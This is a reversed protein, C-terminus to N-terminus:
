KMKVTYVKDIRDYSHSYGGAFFVVGNDDTVEYGNIEQVDQSTEYFTVGDPAASIDSYTGDEVIPYTIGLEPIMCYVPMRFENGRNGIFLMGNYVAMDNGMDSIDMVCHEMKELNYIHLKVNNYLLAIKEDAYVIRGTTLATGIRYYDNVLEYKRKGEPKVLYSYVGNFRDSAVIHGEPAETGNEKVFEGKDSDYIYIVTDEHSVNHYEQLLINGSYDENLWIGVDIGRDEYIVTEKGTELDFRKVQKLNDNEEKRFYTYFMAGDCFYSMSECYEDPTEASWSYIEEPKGGAMDYSYLEWDYINFNDHLVYIYCKGNWICCKYTVGKIPKNVFNQWRFVPQGNHQEKNNYYDEVFEEKNCVPVKEGFDFGSIDVSSVEVPPEKDVMNVSLTIDKFDSEAFERFVPKETVEPAESNEERYDGGTESETPVPQPKKKDECGVNASVAAIVLAAAFARLKRKDM